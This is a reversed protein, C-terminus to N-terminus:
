LQQRTSSNDAMDIRTPASDGYWKCLWPQLLNRTAYQLRVQPTDRNGQIGLAQVSVVGCWSGPRAALAMRRGHRGRERFQCMFSCGHDDGVMQQHHQSNAKYAALWSTRLTHKQVIGSNGCFRKHELRLCRIVMLEDWPGTKEVLRRLEGVKPV